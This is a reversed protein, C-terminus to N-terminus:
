SDEEPPEGIRVDNMAAINEQQAGKGVDNGKTERLTGTKQHKAVSVAQTAMM